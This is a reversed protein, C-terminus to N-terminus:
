DGTPRDGTRTGAARARRPAKGLDAWSMTRTATRGSEDAQGTYPGRLLVTSGARLLSLSDGEVLRIEASDRLLEGAPYSSASPGSARLVVTQALATDCVGVSMGIAAVILLLAKRLM